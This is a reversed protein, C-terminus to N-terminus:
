DNHFPTNTVWVMITKKLNIKKAKIVKYPLSLPHCAAVNRHSSVGLWGKRVHLGHFSRSIVQMCRKSVYMSEALCSKEGSLWGELIKGDQVAVDTVHHVGAEGRRFLSSHDVSSLALPIIVLSDNEESIIYKISVSILVSRNNFM